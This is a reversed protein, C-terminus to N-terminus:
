FSSQYRVRIEREAEEPTGYLGASQGHIPLWYELGDEEDYALYDEFVSFLGERQKVIAFARRGDLSLICRIENERPERQAVQTM